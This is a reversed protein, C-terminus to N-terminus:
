EPGVPVRIEVTSSCHQELLDLVDDPLGGILASSDLLARPSV